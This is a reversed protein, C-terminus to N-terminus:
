VTGISSRVSVLTKVLILELVNCYRKLGLLYTTHTSSSVPVMNKGWIRELLNWHAKLVAILDRTLHVQSAGINILENGRASSRKVSQMIFQVAYTDLYRHKVFTKSNLGRMYLLQLAHTTAMMDYSLCCRSDKSLDPTQSHALAGELCFPPKPLWMSEWSWRTLNLNEICIKPEVKNILLAARVVNTGALM